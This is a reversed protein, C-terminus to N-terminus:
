SRGVPLCDEVGDWASFFGFNIKGARVQRFLTDGDVFDGDDLHEMLMSYPIVRCEPHRYFDDVVKVYQSAYDPSLSRGFHSYRVTLEHCDVPAFLHRLKHADM